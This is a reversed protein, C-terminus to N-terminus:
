QTRGGIRGPRSRRAGAIGGFLIGSMVSELGVV